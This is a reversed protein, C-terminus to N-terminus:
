ISVFHLYAQRLLQLFDMEKLTVKYPEQGDRCVCVSEREYVCVCVCVYVCVCMRVCLCM